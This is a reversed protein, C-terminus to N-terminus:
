SLQTRVQALGNALLDDATQGKVETRLVQTSAAVAAAIAANRVDATAQAEAQAIKAEAAATRRRVFDAMREQADRGMREAEERASSVIEAAEREAAERKAQYERLLAEADARLRRAEELENAIRKGRADLSAAVKKHTGYYGLVAFFIVFAVGTWFTPNSLM